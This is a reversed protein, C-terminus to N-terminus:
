YIVIIDQTNQSNKIGHCVAPCGRIGVSCPRHDHLAMVQKSRTAVDASIQQKWFLIVSFIIVFVSYNILINRRFSLEWDVGRGQGRGCHSGTPQRKKRYCSRPACGCSSSGPGPVITTNGQSMSRKPVRQAQEHVLCTGSIIATMECLKPARREARGAGGCTLLLAPLLGPHLGLLHPRNLLAPSFFAQDQSSFCPFSPLFQELQILAWPQLYLMPASHNEEQSELTM